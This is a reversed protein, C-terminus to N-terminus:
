GRRRRAAPFRGAEGGIRSGHSRLHSQDDGLLVVARLLDRVDEAAAGGLLLGAEARGVVRPLARVPGCIVIPSLPWTSLGAKGSSYLFQCCISGRSRISAGSILSGVSLFTTARSSSPRWPRRRCRSRSRSRGRPRASRARPARLLDDLGVGLEAGGLADGHVPGRDLAGAVRRQGLVLDLAGERVEVLERHREGVGAGGALVYVQDPARGQGARDRAGGAAEAGVEERDAAHLARREAQDDLALELAAGVHGLGEPLDDGGEGVGVAGEVACWAVSLNQFRLLGLRREGAGRLGPLTVSILARLCVRLGGVGSLVVAKVM